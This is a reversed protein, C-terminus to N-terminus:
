LMCYYRERERDESKENEVFERSGMGFGCRM